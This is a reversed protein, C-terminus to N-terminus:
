NGGQTAPAHGTAASDAPAGPIMLVALMLLLTLAVGIISLWATKRGRLRPAIPSNLVIGFIGWVCFTLLVKPTLYWTTGLRTQAREAWTIGTIIGVTLVAFGVTVANHILRELRELSGFAGPKPPVHIGGRKKRRLARDSLLYLVGCAGAIVFAGAGLFTAVRHVLSYTTHVYAEPHATGFHGALLLLAIVVPIVIWELYPIPRRWELYTIFCALVTALTLLASLNDQLPQWATGPATNTNSHWILLAISFLIGALLMQWRIVRPVNKGMRQLLSAVGGAAFAAVAMMLLGLQAGSIM